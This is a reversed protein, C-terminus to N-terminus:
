LVLEDLALWLTPEDVMDKGYIARIRDVGFYAALQQERFMDIAGKVGEHWYDGKLELPWPRPPTDVVFDVTYGGKARSGGWVDYQYQFAIKRTLFWKIAWWEPDSKIFKGYWHTPRGKDESYMELVPVYGAKAGAKLTNRFKQFPKIEM